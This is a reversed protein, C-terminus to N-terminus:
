KKDAHDFIKIQNEIFISLVFFFFLIFTLIERSLLGFMVSSLMQCVKIFEDRMEETKNLDSELCEVLLDTRDDAQVNTFEAKELM